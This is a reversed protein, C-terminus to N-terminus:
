PAAVPEFFGAVQLRVVVAQQSDNLFYWGHVGDFPAVLAGQARLAADQRRYSQVLPAAPPRSEGHFDVYVRDPGPAGPEIDLQTAQADPAPHPGLVQWQYVLTAGQALALKFEREQGYALPIDITQSRYTGGHLPAAAVPVSQALLGSWRGFGTPDRQLEAPWVVALTLVGALAVTGGLQALLRRRTPAPASGSPPLAVLGQSPESM